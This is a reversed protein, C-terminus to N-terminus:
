IFMKYICIYIHTHKIKSKELFLVKIISHKVISVKLVEYIFDDLPTEVTNECDQRIM